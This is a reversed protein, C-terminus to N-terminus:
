GSTHGRADPMEFHRAVVISAVVGVAYCVIDSWLFGHGLLIDLPTEERLRVLWSVTILQQLEILVCIGFGFAVCVALRHRHLVFCVGFTICAASLVDGGYERVLGPMPLASVRSALGLPVTVAILLLHLKRTSLGSNGLARGSRMSM